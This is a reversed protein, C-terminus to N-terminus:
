LPPPPCHHLQKLCQAVFCTTAPEMGLPISPFLGPTWEAELLFSHWPIEKTTFHPQCTSSFVGGDLNDYIHFYPHFGLM